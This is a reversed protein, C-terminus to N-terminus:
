DGEDDRWDSQLPVFCGEQKSLYMKMGKEEGAAGGQEEVGQGRRGWRVGGRKREEGSGKKTAAEVCSVINQQVNLVSSGSFLSM